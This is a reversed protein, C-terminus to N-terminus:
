QSSTPFKLVGVDVLISDVVLGADGTITPGVEVRTLVEDESVEVAAELLVIPDIDTLVPGGPVWSV